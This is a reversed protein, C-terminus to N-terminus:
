SKVATKRKTVNCDSLLLRQIQSANWPNGNRSRVKTQNLRDAIARLSLSQARMAKVKEILKRERIDPLLHIGDPSLKYGYRVNGVLEGREIKVRLAKKTRIRVTEREVQAFLDSMTKLILDTVADESGEGAVSILKAGRRQIIQEVTMTVLMQRAIRDRKAVLLIDGKRISALAGTLGERDEIATSGSVASDVYDEISDPALTEAFTKCATLQAQLGLGSRAQEDSSVRRYIVIKM